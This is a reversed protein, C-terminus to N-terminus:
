SIPYSLPNPLSSQTNQNIKNPNQFTLNKLQHTSSDAIHIGSLCTATRTKAVGGIGLFHRYKKMNGDKQYYFIQEIYDFRSQKLLVYELM